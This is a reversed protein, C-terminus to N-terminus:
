LDRKRDVDIETRVCILGRSEELERRLAYDASGEILGRELLERIATYEWQSGYGYEPETKFSVTEGSESRVAHVQVTHYTNGYGDRWRRGIVHVSDGPVLPKSM